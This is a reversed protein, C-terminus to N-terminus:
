TGFGKMYKKNTALDSPGSVSGALHATLAGFSQDDGAAGADLGAAIADRVVTSKAAGKRKAVAAVRSYLAATLKVTVVHVREANKKRKKPKAM